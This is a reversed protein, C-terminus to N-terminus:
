IANIYDEIFDNSKDISSIDKEINNIFEKMERQTKNFLETRNDINLILFCNVDNFTFSTLISFSTIIIILFMSSFSILNIIWFLIMFIILHLPFYKIMQNINKILNNNIKSYEKLSTYYEKELKIIKTQNKIKSNFNQMLGRLYRVSNELKDNDNELDTNQKKLTEIEERLKDNEKRLEENTLIIYRESSNDANDIESRNKEYVSIHINSGNNSEAM